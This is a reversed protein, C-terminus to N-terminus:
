FEQVSGTTKSSRLQCVSVKFGLFKLGVTVKLGSVTFGLFWRYFVRFGLDGCIAPTKAVEGFRTLRVCCGEM